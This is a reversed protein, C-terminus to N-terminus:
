HDYTCGRKEADACYQRVATRRAKRVARFFDLTDKPLYKSYGSDWLSLDRDFRYFVAELLTEYGYKQMDSQYYSEDYQYPIFAHGVKRLAVMVGNHLQKATM